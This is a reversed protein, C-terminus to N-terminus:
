FTEITLNANCTGTYRTGVWIDYVGNQAKALRIKADLSGNSDDDYHWTGSADNILLISDCETNLRFEIARGVSNGSFTLTFDPATTVLGSGPLSLCGDLDVPGGATIKHSKASYLQDSTYSLSSGSQSVDPCALAPFCALLSLLLVVVALKHRPRYRAPFRSKSMM